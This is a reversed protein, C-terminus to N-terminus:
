RAEELGLSRWLATPHHRQHPPTMSVIRHTAYVNRSNKRAAWAPTPSTPAPKPRRTRAPALAIGSRRVGGTARDPWTM